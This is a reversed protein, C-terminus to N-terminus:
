PNVAKRAAQETHFLNQFLQAFFTAMKNDPSVDFAKIGEGALMKVARQSQGAAVPAGYQGAHWARVVLEDRLELVLELARRPENRHGEVDV